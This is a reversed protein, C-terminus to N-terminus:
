ISHSNNNYCNTHLGIHQLPLFRNLVRSVVSITGHMAAWPGTVHWTVGTCLPRSTLLVDHHARGWSTNAQCCRWHRALQETARKWSWGGHWITINSAKLGLRWTTMNDDHQKSEAGAAIDDYQWWTAQKGGWWGHRWIAGKGCWCGHRWTLRNGFWGDRQRRTARKGCLGGRQCTVRKGGWFCHQWTARDLWLLWTTM